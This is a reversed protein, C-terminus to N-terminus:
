HPKFFIGNLIWMIIGVGAILELAALPPLAIVSKTIDYEYCQFGKIGHSILAASVCIWFLTKMAKLIDKLRKELSKNAM